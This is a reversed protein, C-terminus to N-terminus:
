TKNINKKDVDVKMMMIERKCTQCMLKLEIGTRTVIWNKSGCVHKKKMTVIDGIKYNM